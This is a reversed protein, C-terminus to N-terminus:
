TGKKKHMFDRLDADSMQMMTRVAGGKRGKKGGHKAAYAMAAAKRQAESEAPMASRGLWGMWV